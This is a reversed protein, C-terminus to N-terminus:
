PRALAAPRDPFSQKPEGAKHEAKREAEERAKQEAILSDLDEPRPRAAPLGPALRSPEAERPPASRQVAEDFENLLGDLSDDRPAEGTSQEPATDPSM